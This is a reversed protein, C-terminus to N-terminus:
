GSSMTWKRGTDAPSRTITMAKRFRAHRPEAKDLIEVAMAVHAFSLLMDLLRQEREDLQHLPKRDLQELARAVVDKAAEFFAVREESTSEGRRRDREATGHIAWGAAFPELAEYGDPLLTNM